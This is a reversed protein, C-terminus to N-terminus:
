FTVSRMQGHDIDWDQTVIFQCASALINKSLGFKTTSFNKATRTEKMSYLFPKISAKMFMRNEITIQEIGNRGNPTFHHKEHCCIKELTTANPKVFPSMVHKAPNDMPVWQHCIIKALQTRMAISIGTEM